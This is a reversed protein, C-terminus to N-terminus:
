RASNRYTQGNVFGRVEYAQDRIDIHVAGTKDQRFVTIGQAATAAEWADLKAIPEGYGLASCIVVKPAVRALFDPTGSLDKTHQGKILIDSRLDPENELLWQETIFGSASMLLARTGGAELRLVLAMDGATTRKLGAPPYLVRLTTNGLHIADDRIYLGKGLQRQALWTHLNRRTSSRDRLTSDALLYPRFDNISTTAAGIHKVNGHTLLLGDLRNVGRSRLYPLITHNYHAEDGCDLLWDFGGARLHAAGGDGLDLVNLECPPAAQLRPTEVYLYGSPLDASAHLVFLMLKAAFWNANNFLVTAHLSISASLVSGLGLALVVFAVPVACFNAVLSGPSFLHFYGVTFVLSGLWSALVVGMAVCVCHWCWTGCKVPWSWLVRPLFPDPEALAELWRQIRAACVIIIFVLTFSFQFGPAFLENTDYALLLLAAAGLSNVSIARRDVLAATLVLTAMITSRVSSTRLGTMLTYTALVLIVVVITFSRPLGFPKLAFFVITALMAINLGSVVFLHITGTRQLLTKLDEPSEGRLGLVVGDIVAMVEPSDALDIELRKQVWHRSKLGFAQLPNGHGHSDIHCDIPFRPRIESYVGLRQQYSTSDFEGPNRRPALNSAGGVFTIRDGYVPADGLWSVNAFSQFRFSEGGLRISELKVVFRATVNGSWTAPKEPESWVIGTAEVVRPEHALVDAFWRADSGQQQLTHLEFFITACFLWCTLTGPRWLIAFLGLTAVGFAWPWPLAWRDAAFIGLMAAVALGALPQRPQPAWFKMDSRTM